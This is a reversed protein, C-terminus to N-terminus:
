GGWRSSCALGDVCTTSPTCTSAVVAANNLLAAVQADAVAPTPTATVTIVSIEAPTSSEPVQRAVLYGPRAHKFNNIPVVGANAVTALVILTSLMAERIRLLSQVSSCIPTPFLIVYIM